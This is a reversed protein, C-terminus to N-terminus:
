EFLYKLCFNLRIIIFADWVNNWVHEMFSQVVSKEFVHFTKSM